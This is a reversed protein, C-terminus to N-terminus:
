LDESLRVAKFVPFRPIGDDTLSFFTVTGMKGIFATKNSLYAVRTTYDGKPTAKFKVGRDDQLVMVGCEPRNDMPVVDVIKYEADQFDKLKLLDSSRANQRYLSKSNKVMTGEYGQALFMEHYKDVEKKSHCLYQPVLVIGPLDKFLSSYIDFRQGAPVNEMVLDYIHYEVLESVGPRYKKVAKIITQFNEAGKDHVYLEGDPIIHSYKGQNLITKLSKRIHDMTTIEKGGRSWMAEKPTMARMGDLKPSALVGEEYDAYSDQYKKALMAKPITRSNKLIYEKVSTVTWKELFGAMMPLVLYTEDQKKAIKSDAELTAQEHGSTENSRGVNKPTCVRDQSVLNGGWLGATSKLTDGEVWLNLERVKGKSDLKVLKVMNM